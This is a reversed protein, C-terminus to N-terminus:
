FPPPGILKTMTMMMAIVVLAAVAGPHVPHDVPGLLEAPDVQGVPVVLVAQVPHARVRDVPHVLAVLHVQREVRERRVQHAGQASPAQVAAPVQGM